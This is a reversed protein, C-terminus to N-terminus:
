STPCKVGQVRSCRKEGIGVPLKLSGDQFKQRPGYSFRPGGSPECGLPSGLSAGQKLAPSVWPWSLEAGSRTVPQVPPSRSKSPVEYQGLQGFETLGPMNGDASVM